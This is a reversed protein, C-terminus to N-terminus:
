VPAPPQKRGGVTAMQTAGQGVPAQQQQQGQIQAPQQQGGGMNIGSELKTPNIGVKEAYDFVLARVVPNELAQPNGAIVQIMQWENNAIVDTSQQENDILIDFDLDIDDFWGETVQLHLEKVTKLQNINETLMSQYQEPTVIDGKFMKEKVQSNTYSTAIAATLRLMDEYDGAFRLIHERSINTLLQPLEFTRLYRRVFNAFNQRKFAFISTINNQQIVTNTAPTSSPVAEGTTQPSVFSISQILETYLQEESQFANLNREENAVPEYPAGGNDLVDGNILDSVVNQVVGKGNRQFLHLTSLEMSVRKQNALENIREQPIFLAEVPGIGLWRGPTKYYHYEDVPWLGRWESRFLVGGDEGLYQGKSDMSFSMPEAVIFLSRVLDQSKGSDKLMWEEVEGFREYVEIYPTSRIMNVMGNTEYSMGATGSRMQRRKWEIINNIVTEDWGDKVKKKLETETFLHKFTVFRSKQCNEVTPDLFFRRLDAIEAGKKTKKIVVSGFDAARDAMDNLKQAFDNEKLYYDLEKQGVLTKFPNKSGSTSILRIDKTDVNLFKAVVDRVPKIKNVFIKQMGQYPSNDRFKSNIYLHCRKITEYQNFTYGPVIEISNYMFDDIEGRIISFINKPPM